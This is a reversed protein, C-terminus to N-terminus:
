QPTASLLCTLCITRAWLTLCAQHLPHSRSRSLLRHFCYKTTTNTFTRDRHMRRARALRWECCSGSEMVLYTMSILMSFGGVFVNKKLHSSLTEESQFILTTRASEVTFPGGIAALVLALARVTIDAWRTWGTTMGKTKVSKCATYATAVILPLIAISFMLLEEGLLGRRRPRSMSHMTTCVTVMPAIVQSLYSYFENDLVVSVIMLASSLVPLVFLFWRYVPAMTDADFAVLIPFAYERTGPPKAEYNMHYKVANQLTKVDDVLLVIDPPTAGGAAEDSMTTTPLSRRWGGGTPQGNATSSRRSGGGGPNPNPPPPSARRSAISGRPTPPSDNEGGGVGGGGDLTTSPRFTVNIKLAAQHTLATSQRRAREQERRHGELTPSPSEDPTAGGGYAVNKLETLDFHRVTVSTRRSGPLRKEANSSSHHQLPNSTQPLPPSATFTNESCPPPVSSSGEDDPTLTTM